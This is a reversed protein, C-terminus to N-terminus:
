RVSSRPALSITRDTSGTSSAYVILSLTISVSLNLQVMQWGLAEQGHLHLTVCVAGHCLHAGHGAVSARATILECM